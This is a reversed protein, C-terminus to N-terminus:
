LDWPQIIHRQATSKLGNESILIGRSIIGAWDFRTARYYGNNTDPLYLSAKIIGNSIETQPNEGIRFGTLVIYIFLIFVGERKM